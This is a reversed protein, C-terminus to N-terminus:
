WSGPRHKGVMGIMKRCGTKLPSSPIAIVLGAYYDIMEQSSQEAKGAFYIEGPIIRHSGRGLGAHGTRWDTGPKHSPKWFRMWPRKMSQLNSCGGEDGVSSSLGRAKLVAKLHHFIETGMRLGEAFSSAGVPMVMFEQIDVNNDAHKGGNLINLMPVPLDKGNFGGLYRYLPLRLFNAAAKAAALSVGLLANAGLKGKNATGDMDILLRDLEVQNCVDMGVLEPRIIVNVNNVADLVGRGLYRKEDKDRLEVAEYAGTSAGSPVAARGLTGDELYIDVEM